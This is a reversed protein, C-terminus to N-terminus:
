DRAESATLGLLYDVSVNYYVSLMVARQASIIRKGSEYCCYGAQTCGLFDAVQKQTIRRSKRLAKLISGTTRAPAAEESAEKPVPYPRKYPTRGLLFDASVNYYATLITLMKLPISRKGSEYGIYSIRSCGILAAIEDQTNTMDLRMAKLPNETNMEIM